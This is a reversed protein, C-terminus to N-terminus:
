TMGGLMFGQNQHLAGPADPYLLDGEIVLDEQVRRTHVALLRPAQAIAPVGPGGIAGAAQLGGFLVPAVYWRVGAAMRSQLFSWHVQGGGEVMLSCIGRRGLEALLPEVPVVGDQDAPLEIVDAGAERLANIRAVPALNTVAIVAPLVQATPPTRGMSDLVVRLPHRPAWGPLDTAGALAPSERVADPLGWGYALAGPATCRTTLQPDDRQVTRIGVLIADSQDRLQHVENRSEEGSVWRSEGGATAIKGDLSVAAKLLVYPRGTEKWHLWPRNLARADAEMCGLEVEIGAMRLRNIGQGSVREDPDVMAVVARSIGAQVLAEACPPTLGHHCCPELTVYATAGRALEGAERLAHVEAHACGRKQHYGRGVVRGDRVIVCGVMPNPHCRYRARSALALAELMFARDAPSFWEVESLAGFGGSAIRGEPTQM